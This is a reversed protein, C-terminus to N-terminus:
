CTKLYTRCRQLTSDNLRIRQLLRQQHLQWQWDTLRRAGRTRSREHADRWPDSSFIDHFWPITPMKLFKRVTYQLKLMGEGGTAHCADHQARRPEETGAREMTRQPTIGRVAWPVQVRRGSWPSSQSAVVIIWIKQWRVCMLAFKHYKKQKDKWIEKKGSM